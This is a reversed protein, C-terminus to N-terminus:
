SILIVVAAVIAAATAVYLCAVNLLILDDESM